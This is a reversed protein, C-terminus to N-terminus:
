YYYNTEQDRDNRNRYTIRNVETVHFQKLEELIKSESHDPLNNYRITGKITNLSIHPSVSVEVSSVSTIEMIKNCQIESSVEVLLNDDRMETIKQLAGTLKRELDKNGTITDISSLNGGNVLAIVFFFQFNQYYINNDLIDNSPQQTCCAVNNIEEMM